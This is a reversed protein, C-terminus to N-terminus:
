NSVQAVFEANTKTRFIYVILNTLILESCGYKVIRQGAALGAITPIGRLTGSVSGVM